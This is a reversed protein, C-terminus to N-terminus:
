PAEGRAARRRPRRARRLIVLLLAGALALAPTRARTAGLSCSCGGGSTTTTPPVMDSFVGAIDPYYTMDVVGLDILTASCLPDTKLPFQFSVEVQNADENGSSDFARAIAFYKGPTLTMQWASAVPSDDPDSLVLPAVPHTFDYSDGDRRVYLRVGVLNDDAQDGKGEFTYDFHDYPGCCSDDGSACFAHFCSTGILGGYTPSTTDPGGGTSFRAFVAAPTPQCQTTSCDCTQPWTDVLEYTANAALPQTPRFEWIVGYHPDVDTAQAWAGAITTGGDVPVGADPIGGDTFNAPRLIPAPPKPGCLSEAHAGTAYTVRVRISTPVNADGDGPLSTRVRAAPPFQCAFAPPSAVTLFAVFAYAARV